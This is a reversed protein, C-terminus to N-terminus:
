AAEKALGYEHHLGGLVSRKVVRYGVPWRHRHENPPVCESIPEPLGPGLASHPRGRNSYITLESGDKASPTRPLSNSLGSM